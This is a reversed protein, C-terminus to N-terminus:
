NSKSSLTPAIPCRPSVDTNYMAYASGKSTGWVGNGGEVERCHEAHEEASGERVGKGNSRSGRGM